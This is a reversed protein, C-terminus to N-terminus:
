AAAIATSDHCDPCMGLSTPICWGRDLGCLRCTRRATMARELAVLQAASATRKPLARDVRYLYAVRHSRGHWWRIEAVPSQGGPRLGLARLQRRTALGAAALGFKYAAWEDISRGSPIPASRGDVTVGVPGTTGALLRLTCAPGAPRARPPHSV